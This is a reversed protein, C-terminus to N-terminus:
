SNLLQRILEQQQEITELLSSVATAQRGFEDRERATKAVYLAQAVRENLQEADLEVDCIFGTTSDIRVLELKVLEGVLRVLELFQGDDFRVGMFTALMEITGLWDKMYQGTRSGGDEQIRRLAGLVQFLSGQAGAANLRFESSVRILGSKEFLGTELSPAQQEAKAKPKSKSAAPKEPIAELMELTVELCASDLLVFGGRGMKGRYLGLKNLTALLKSASDQSFGLREAVLNAASTTSETGDGAEEKLVALVENLNRLRKQVTAPNVTRAM